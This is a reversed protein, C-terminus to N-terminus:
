RLGALSTNTPLNAPQEVNLFLVAPQDPSVDLADEMAYVREVEVSIKKQSLLDATEQVAGPNLTTSYLFYKRPVGGLLHPWFMNKLANVATIFPGDVMAGINVFHGQEKLYTPSYKYLPQTGTLDLIADFPRSKYESELYEWM